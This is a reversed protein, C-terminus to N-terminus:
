HVVPELPRRIAAASGSREAPFSVGGYMSPYVFLGSITCRCLLHDYISPLIVKSMTKLPADMFKERHM